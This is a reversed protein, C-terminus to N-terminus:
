KELNEAQINLLGSIDQYLGETVLYFKNFVDQFHENSFLDQFSKLYM